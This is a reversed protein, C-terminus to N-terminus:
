GDKNIEGMDKVVFLIRDTANDYVFSIYPRDASVHYNRMIGDYSYTVVHSGAETGEEDVDIRSTMISEIGGGRMYPGEPGRGYTSRLIEKLDVKTELGEIKPVELHVKAMTKLLYSVKKKKEVLRSFEDWVKNLDAEKEDQPGGTKPVLYIMLRRGYSRMYPLGVMYFERQPDDCLHERLCLNEKMKMFMRKVKKEKSVHFDGEETREKKFKHVWEDRFYAMSSYIRHSSVLNEMKLISQLKGNSEKRILERDEELLKKCEDKDKSSYRKLVGVSELKSCNGMERPIYAANAVRVIARDSFVMQVVRRMHKEVPEKEVEYEGGLAQLLVNMESCVPSFVSSHKASSNRIFDRTVKLDYRQDSGSGISKLWREM